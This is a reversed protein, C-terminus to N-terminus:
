RRAEEAPIAITGRCQDTRFRSCGYFYTGRQSNRKLVTAASCKPCPPGNHTYPPTSTPASQPTKDTEPTSTGPAMPHQSYPKPRQLDPTRSKEPQGPRRIERTGDCKPDECRFLRQKGNDEYYTHSRCKECRPNESETIKELAVRASTHTKTLLLAMCAAAEASVVRTMLEDTRQAFSLVNLSGHWVIRRDIIVVKEHIRARGDVVCDLARLTAFAEAGNAPANQFNKTPPRSICRVKVKEATAKELMRRLENVRHKSVFGSFIVISERARAVDASFHADFTQANFAGWRRTADDLSQLDLGEFDRGTPGLAFLEKAPLVRGRNQLDYLVGRLIANSPLTRDLHRLNAIVVLHNRARSVAVNILRSGNEAPSIGQLFHGSKGQSEPFDLIIADREDGQFTHVSGVQVSDLAHEKLLRQILRVQSAYPTCVGLAGTDTSFGSQALHYCLNRVLLAHTLNFRSKNEFGEACNLESTDILTLPGDFPPPPRKMRARRSLWDPDRTTQLRGAYMRGSILACISEHMRYQTDLMVMREDHAGLSTLGAVDFVDRGILDFIMQRQTNFIPELQRFDGCVIARERSMGVLIWMMPQLIMSAEDAIALDAFGIEKPKLYARTGTAGIVKADNLIKKRLGAIEEELAQCRKRRSEIGHGLERARADLTRRDLGALLPGLRRYEQDALPFKLVAAERKAHLGQHEARLQDHTHIEAYLEQTVTETSRKFWGRWGERPERLEAELDARQKQSDRLRSAIRTNESEFRDLVTQHEEVEIAAKDWADFRELSLAVSTLENELETIARRLEQIERQLNATIRTVVRDPIVHDGFELSLKADAIDGLRLVQGQLLAPHDKGLANCISYLVQDVAKNTTSSILTRKGAEFAQRVVEGLVLTKGCGPPGWIFTLAQGLSRVLANHQSTNLKKSVAGVAIPTARPAIGAGVAADALAFNFEGDRGEIARIRELLQQLLKTDDLVLEAKLITPGSDAELRLVVQSDTKEQISCKKALRGVLLDYEGTDRIDDTRNTDFRYQPSEGPATLREGNSLTRTKAARPDPNDKIDRIHQDLAVRYRVCRNAGPDISIDGGQRSFSSPEPLGPTGLPRVLFVGGSAPSDPQSNTADPQAAESPSPYTSDGALRRVGPHSMLRGRLTRAAPSISQRTSLEILIRKCLEEEWQYRDLLAELESVKLNEFEREDDM